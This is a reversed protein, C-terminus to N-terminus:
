EAGHLYVTTTYGENANVCHVARGIIYSGDWGGWNKLEMTLGAAKTPDGPFVIEVTRSYRNHARLQKEALAKAEGISGVKATIELQRNSESSKYDAVRAVGEIKKGTEPDNWSVRCSQYPTDAEGASLRYSLYSGDGRRVTCVSQKEEYEKRDFLILMRASAKLAIGADACLRRLLAIDSMRFQEVREYYPDEGCLFLLTMGARRAMEGAIGSLRYREWGRSHEQQRIPAEFPLSTGRVVVESPPGACEVSDLEFSGCNLLADKGDGRWNRAVIEAELALGTGASGAGGDASEAGGKLYAACVWAERGRYDIVAWGNEIRAVQVATGCVLAGLKSYGTGPGTRVNLGIKPTVRYTGGGAGTPVLVGGGQPDAAADLLQELWTELWIGERDQLRLQIDDAEDGENDTFTLSLLYPRLGATIDAGWLSVAVETRRSTNRESM